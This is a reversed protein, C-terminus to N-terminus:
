SGFSGGCGATGGAESGGFAPFSPAERGAGRDGDGSEFARREADALKAFAAAYVSYFGKQNNLLTPNIHTHRQTHSAHTHHTTHRGGRRMQWGVFGGFGRCVSSETCGAATPGVKPDDGYGSFCASSFFEFVEEEEAPREGAEFGGGDGGAQHRM